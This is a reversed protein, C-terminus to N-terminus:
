IRWNLSDIQTAPRGNVVLVGGTALPRALTLTRISADYIFDTETVPSATTPVTRGLADYVGVAAVHYAAVGDGAGSGSAGFMFQTTFTSRNGAAAMVGIRFWDDGMPQVSPGWLGARTVGSALTDLDLWAYCWEGNVKMQYGIRLAGASRKVLASLYVPQTSINSFPWSLYHESNTATITMSTSPSGDPAVPGAAKTVGTAVSSNYALQNTHANPILKTQNEWSGVIRVDAPVLRYHTADVQVFEWASDGILELGTADASLARALTLIGTTSDYGYDVETVAAGATPILRTVPRNISTQIHAVHIGSAGDGTYGAVGGSLAEVVARYANTATAPVSQMDIRWWGDGLNKTTISAVSALHSTAGTTLNVDALFAPSTFSAVWEKRFDRVGSAKVLFADYVVDGVAVSRSVGVPCIYHPGTATNEVLSGSPGMPSAPGAIPASCGSNYGWGLTGPVSYAYYNAGADQRLEVGDEWGGKIRVGELAAPPRSLRAAGAALLRMMLGM